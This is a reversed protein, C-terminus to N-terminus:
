RDLSWIRESHVVPAGEPGKWHGPVVILRRLTRGPGYPQRRPHAKVPFRVNVTRGELHESRGTQVERRLHIVKVEPVTHGRREIRRRMAREAQVHVTEVLRRQNLVAFLAAILRRDEVMSTHVEIPLDIRHREILPRGYPWDTRGLPLWIPLKSTDYGDDHFERGLRDDDGRRILRLMGIALAKVTYPVNPDTWNSDWPPLNASGWIIGHMSVPQGPTEPGADTGWIPKGFVVLGNLAPLDAMDMTIDDPTAAAVDTVVDTLEPTVYVLQANTLHTRYLEVQKTARQLGAEALPALEDAGYGKPGAIIRNGKDDWSATGWGVLERLVREHETNFWVGDTVTADLLEARLAPLTRPDGIVPTMNPM